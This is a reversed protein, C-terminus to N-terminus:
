GEETPQDILGLETLIGFGFAHAAYAILEERQAYGGALYPDLSIPYAHAGSEADRNCESFALAVGAHVAEHMVVWPYLAEEALRMTGLHRGGKQVGSAIQFCGGADALHEAAAPHRKRASRRMEGLTPYVVVRLRYARDTLDEIPDIAILFERTPEQKTM